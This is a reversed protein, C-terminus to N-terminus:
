GDLTDDLEYDVPDFAEDPADTMAALLAGCRVVDGPMAYCHRLVGSTEAEVDVEAKDVEIVLVIQGREIRGGIARSWSVIKAEEMTPDLRPMRIARTM